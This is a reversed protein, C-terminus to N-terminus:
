IRHRHRARAKTSRRSRARIADHVQDVTLGYRKRDALGYREVVIDEASPATRRKWRNYHKRWVTRLLRMDDIAMDLAQELSFDKWANWGKPRYSKRQGRPRKYAYIFEAIDPYLKRLLAPDGNRAATKAKELLARRFRDPMADPSEVWNVDDDRDLLILEAISWKIMADVDRKDRSEWPPLKVKQPIPDRM